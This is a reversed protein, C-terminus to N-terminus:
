PRGVMGADPGIQGKDLPVSLILECLSALSLRCLVVNDLQTSVAYRCLQRVIVRIPCMFM